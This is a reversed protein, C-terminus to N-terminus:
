LARERYRDVLDDPWETQKVEVPRCELASQYASLVVAWEHLSQRLCTGPEKNADGLWDLMARHFGAQALLNKV